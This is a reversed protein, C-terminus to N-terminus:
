FVEKVIEIIEKYIPKFQPLLSLMEEIDAKLYNLRNRVDLALGQNNDIMTKAKKFANKIKNVLIIKKFINM